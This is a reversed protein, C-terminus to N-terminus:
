SAREPGICGILYDFEASVRFGTGPEQLPGLVGLVAQRVAEEGVHAIAAFAPGTAAWARWALDADPWESVIEVTARETPVFGASELMAEAVGPVGIQVHARSPRADADDMLCQLVRLIELEPSRQGASWFGLAVLGGPRLVRRAEGLAPECGAWIGNFSTIVDFSGGAFPLDFMTGERLDARPTRAGGIALLGASADLGSVVAGREAALQLALGAGCAVDLLLTGPGVGLREHVRQYLRRFGPEALYAWDPSRAAWAAGATRWVQEDTSAPSAGTATETTMLLGYPRLGTADEGSRAM